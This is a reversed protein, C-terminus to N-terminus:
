RTLRDLTRKLWSRSETVQYRTDKILIEEKSQTSFRVRVPRMSQGHNPLKFTVERGAEGGRISFSGIQHEEDGFLASVKLVTIRDQGLNPASLSLSVNAELNAPFLLERETNISQLCPLSFLFNGAKDEAVFKLQQSLADLRGLFVERNFGADKGSAYTLYRMGGISCIAALSRRDPFGKLQRPFERMIKSKQGSYGNVSRWGTGSLQLLVQINRRAFDGWSVPTGLANLEGTYPLAILAGDSAPIQSLIEHLEGREVEGEVPVLPHLNETLILLPLLL